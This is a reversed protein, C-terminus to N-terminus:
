HTALKDLQIEKMFSTMTNAFETKDFQHFRNSNIFLKLEEFAQRVGYLNNFADPNKSKLKVLKKIFDKYDQNQSIALYIDLSDRYRKEILVSQSKTLLTGVENMLPFEIPKLQDIDLKYNKYYKNDFLIQSSPLAISKMAFNKSLYKDIPIEFEIHEVYIEKTKLTELPHLLDMNYIFKKGCVDIEKFLQFDHKASLIFGAELFALIVDKLKDKKYAGNFLIDVDKTGPHIIPKSNLLYPSWGGVVIYEVNLSNLLDVCEYLMGYAGDQINDFQKM